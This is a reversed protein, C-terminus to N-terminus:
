SFHLYFRVRTNYQRCCATCRRLRHSAIDSLLPFLHITTLHVIDLALTLFTDALETTVDLTFIFSDSISLFADLAFLPLSFM